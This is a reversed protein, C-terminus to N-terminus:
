MIFDGGAEIVKKCHEFLRKLENSFRQRPLNRFMHLAADRVDESSQFNQQRLAKKMELFLWRDCLNLDPSYPSQRLLKVGREAFFDRTATASHPRANDHQWWLESLRTPSSRLTRWKRGTDKVFQIFRESNLTDGAPIAEINIKGDGTFAVVLMTKRNTLKPSLVRPRSAGLPLWAKNEQKTGVSEFCVWTEDETAWFRLCDELTNEDFTKMLLRACEIRDRKNSDSLKYPVWVSCVKRLSLSDELIRRVSDKSIGLSQSLTRLSQRPNATIENSVLEINEVTLSTSPRGSRPEDSFSTRDSLERFWRFITAQSPPAVM